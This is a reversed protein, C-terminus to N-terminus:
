CVGQVRFGSGQVRFGSGQVRFGSGQVRFGSGARNIHITLWDRAFPQSDSCVFGGSPQRAPAPADTAPPLVASPPFNHHQPSHSAAGQVPNPSLAAHQLLLRRCPLASMHPHSYGQCPISSCVCRDCILDTPRCHQILSRPPASSLTTRIAPPLVASAGSVHPPPRPPPLPYCQLRM